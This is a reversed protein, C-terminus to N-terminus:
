GGRGSERDPATELPDRHRRILERKCRPCKLPEEIPVWDKGPLKLESARIKGDPGVAHRVSVEFTGHMECRYEARPYALQGCTPCRPPEITLPLTFAHRRPCVYTVLPKFRHVPSLPSESDGRWVRWAILVIM